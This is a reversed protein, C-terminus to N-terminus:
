ATVASARPLEWMWCGEADRFALVGLEKRAARLTLESFGADAIGNEITAAVPMPGSALQGEMWEKAADLAKPKLAAGGVPARGRIVIGGKEVRILGQGVMKKKARNFAQRKTATAVEGQAEYVLGRWEEITMPQDDLLELWSRENGSLPAGQKPEEVQALVCSDHKPQLDYFKPKFPEWDKMKKYDLRIWGGGGGGSVLIECDVAGLGASSGRGGKTADKGTHHLLIVSCGAWGEQMQGCSAIFRNMDQTANENGDGFCRAVTDVFVAEPQFPVGKMFEGVDSGKLMDVPGNHVVFRELPVDGHRNEMLWAKVRKSIGSVGEGAIYVVRRGKKVALSLAMDLAVFTKGIGPEGYIRTLGVPVKGHILWQPPPLDKLEQWTFFRRRRAPLVIGSEAAREPGAREQAAAGQRM